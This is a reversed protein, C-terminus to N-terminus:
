VAYMHQPHIQAPLRLVLLKRALLSEWMFESLLPGPTRNYLPTAMPRHTSTITGAMGKRSALKLYFLNETVQKLMYKWKSAQNYLTTKM